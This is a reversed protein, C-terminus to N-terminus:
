LKLKKRFKPLYIYAFVAVIALVIWFFFESIIKLALFVINLVLFLILVIILIRFLQKDKM